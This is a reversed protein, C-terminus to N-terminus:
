STVGDYIKPRFEDYVRNQRSVLALRTVLPLALRSVLRPVLSSLRTALRRSWILLSAPKLHPSVLRSLITPDSRRIAADHLEHSWERFNYSQELKNLKDRWKNTTADDNTRRTMMQENQGDGTMADNTMSVYVNVEARCFCKSRGLRTTITTM